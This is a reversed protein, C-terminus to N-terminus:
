KARSKLVMFPVLINVTVGALLLFLGGANKFKKNKWMVRLYILGPLTLGISGDAFSGCIDLILGFLDGESMQYHLLIAVIIFPLGLLALTLWVYSCMSLKVVDKNLFLKAFSHRMVVFCVPVYLILHLVVMFKVALALTGGFNDLIDGETKERYCLYGSLGTLVCVVAALVMSTATVSTWRGPSQREMSSFAFFTAVLCDFAFVVSGLKEACGRPSFWVLGGGAEFLLHGRAAAQWLVCGSVSTIALISLASPIALHGFHRVMCLPLVVLVTIITLTRVDSIEFGLDNGIWKQLIRSGEGGILTLYSCISLIGGFLIAGDLFMGGFRGFCHRTLDGYDMKNALIGANLLKQQAWWLSSCCSLYMLLGGIIGAERFVQPQNLIGSGIMTNLLLFITGWRGNKPVNQNENGPARRLRTWPSPASLTKKWCCLRSRLKSFFSPAGSVLAKKKLVSYFSVENEGDIGDDKAHLEISDFTSLEIPELETIESEEDHETSLVSPIPKYGVHSPIKNKNAPM